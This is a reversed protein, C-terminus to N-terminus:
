AAIRTRKVLASWATKVDGGLGFPQAVVNYSGDSQKECSKVNALITFNGADDHLTLDALWAVPYPFASAFSLVNPGVMTARHEAHGKGEIVFDVPWGDVPAMMSTEILTRVVRTTKSNTDSPMEFARLQESVSPMMTLIAAREDHALGQVAGLAGQDADPGRDLVAIIEDISAVLETLPRHVKAASQPSHHHALVEAIQEPLQWRTAVIMGLEVHLDDVVKNWAHEPMRPADPMAEVCALAVVAGFDHLLGALFAQDPDLGRRQAIEKCFVASLLSRRWVDRRLVSLPGQRMAAAGFGAATVVQLLEDLGIRQIASELTLVGPVRKAAAAARRLVAAVLSGDKSILATMQQLSTGERTLRELAGAIAPYPPIRPEASRLQQIVRSALSEEPTGTPRFTIM